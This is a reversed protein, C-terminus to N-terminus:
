LKPRANPAKERGDDAQQVAAQKWEPFRDSDHREAAIDEDEQRPGAARSSPRANFSMGSTALESSDCGRAVENSFEAMLMLLGLPVQCLAGKASGLFLVIFRSGVCLSFESHLRASM